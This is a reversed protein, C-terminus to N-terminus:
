PSIYKNIINAIDVCTINFMIDYVVYKHNLTTEKFMCNHCIFMYPDDIPTPWIRSSLKISIQKYTNVCWCINCEDADVADPLINFPEKGHRHELIYKCETSM